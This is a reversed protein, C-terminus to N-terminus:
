APIFYCKAIFCILAYSAMVVIIFVHHSKLKDWVGEEPRSSFCDYFIGNRDEETIYLPDDPFNPDIGSKFEENMIIESVLCDEIILNRKLTLNYHEWVIYFCPIFMIVQYNLVVGLLAFIAINISTFLFPPGDPYKIYKFIGGSIDQRNLKDIYYTISKEM